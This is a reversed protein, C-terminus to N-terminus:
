QVTLSLTTTHTIATIGNNSQATITLKYNGAPTPPIPPPGHNYYNYRSNCATAGLACVIGLLVVLALNGIWRRRRLGLGILALAGPLVLAWTAPGPGRGIRPRALAGSGLQTEIVMTSTPPCVTTGGSQKTCATPTSSLIELNEPTFTCSSQDPLGQCSLTIFMPATLSANNVPKITIVAQQSQGLAVSLTAPSVSISFDPATSGADAHIRSLQSVSGRHSADGLYVARLAHDGDALDISLTAHGDSDLPAGALQRGDEDIAVAGAVAPRDSGSVNVDLTAHTCGDQTHTEATLTTQTPQPPFDISAAFAPMAVALVIGAVMEPRLARGILSRV